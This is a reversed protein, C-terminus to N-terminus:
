KNTGLVYSVGLVFSNSSGFMSFRHDTFKSDVRSSAQYSMLGVSSHLIWKKNIFYSLGPSVNISGSVDASETETSAGFIVTESHSSSYGAAINAGLTFYLKDAM